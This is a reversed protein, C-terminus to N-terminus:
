DFIFEVIETFNYNMRINETTEPSKVIRSFRTKPIRRNWTKGCTAKQVNQYRFMKIDM